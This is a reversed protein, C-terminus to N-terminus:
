RLTSRRLAGGRQYIVPTGAPGGLARELAAATAVPHGGIWWVRDGPLLGAGAATGGRPAAAVLVGAEDRGTALSDWLVVRRRVGDRTLVLTDPAPTTILLAATNGAPATANISVIHDGPLLGARAAPSVIRVEDIVATSDPPAPTSSRLGYRRLALAAPTEALQALRLVDDIPVLVTADACLTVIGALRGDLDFAGAGDFIRPIDAGVLFPRADWEGCRADRRGSVLVPMWGANGASTRSVILLWGTPARVQEPAARASDHAARGILRFPFLREGASTPLAPAVAAASDIIVGRGEEPAVLHDAFGRAREAFYSALDAAIRRRSIDDLRVLETRPLVPATSGHPRLLAGVV